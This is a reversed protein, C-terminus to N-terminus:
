AVQGVHEPIEGGLSQVEGEFVGDFGNEFSALISWCVNLESCINKRTSAGTGHGEEKDVRKIVSTGPLKFNNVRM